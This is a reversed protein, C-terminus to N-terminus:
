KIKEVKLVLPFQAEEGLDFFIEDYSINVKIIMISFNNFQSGIKVENQRELKWNSDNAEKILMSFLKTKNKTIIEVKGNESFTFISSGFSKILDKFYPSNSVKEIKVVKWVGTIFEKDVKQCFSKM